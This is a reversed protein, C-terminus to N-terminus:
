KAEQKKYQPKYIEFGQNLLSKKLKEKDYSVGFVNKEPLTFPHNREALFDIITIHARKKGTLVLEEKSKKEKSM